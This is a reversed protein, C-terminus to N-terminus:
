TPAPEVPPAVLVRLSQPVAKIVVPTETADEGDIMVRKPEKTSIRIEATRFFGVNDRESPRQMFATTALHFSTALADALGRIAVITVDLLGDDDVISAPGQALLTTPPALNAVTIANALCTAEQGNSDITIDFLADDLMREAGELVYALAGYKRKSEPDAETVADAHVGITALLIMARDNVRATDIVRSYGGTIIACAQELERPIGLHGAISNATGRPLIGLVGEAHGVLVSAVCSVTGDGGSAILLQAGDRLAEAALQAPSCEDSAIRVDLEFHEALLARARELEEESASGGGPHHILTAHPM